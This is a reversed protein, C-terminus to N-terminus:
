PLEGLSIIKTLPREPVEKEPLLEEAAAPSVKGPLLEEVAAQRPGKSPKASSRIASLGAGTVGTNAAMDSIDAVQSSESVNEDAHRRTSRPLLACRKASEDPVILNRASDLIAARYTHLEHPTPNAAQHRLKVKLNSIARLWLAKESCSRACFHHADLTFCSCDVAVHESVGTQVGFSICLLLEECSEDEYAIFSSRNDLHAHLEGYIVCVGGPECKLLYGALIRNGTCQMGPVPVVAIEFRPFLSQTFMRHARAIDAVWRTRELDANEGEVAFFHTSGHHFVSIKFLRMWPNSKDAKVSHLRCAQVLSFPSWAISLEQSWNPNAVTFGNVYLALTVLEFHANDEGPRMYRVDGVRTPLGIMSQGLDAVYRMLGKPRDKAIRPQPMEPLLEDKRFEDLGTEDSQCHCLGPLLKGVSM